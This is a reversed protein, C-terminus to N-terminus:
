KASMCWITDDTSANLLNADSGTMMISADDQNFEVSAVIAHFGGLKNSAITPIGEVDDKIRAIRWPLCRQVAGISATDCQIVPGADFIDVMDTFHFGEDFLMKLAPETEPHVTGIIGKVEDPMLDVFLPFQPMMEEIYPKAITSMADAVPFDVAFFPRMAVEWFPSIGNEDCVGRMEAIVRKAFRTPRQAIMAFRSFSLLRGRGAGRFQPLLFLSGIETPGDHIRQLHLSTRKRDYLGLQPSTHTTIVVRYAYFPEYGGTRGYVTATGVLQGTSEDQMVLVYPDGAISESKRHFAFHSREIRELLQPPDVMLTTLGPSVSRIMELLGDIDDM